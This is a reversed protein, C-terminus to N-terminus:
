ETMGAEAPIVSRLLTLLAAEDQWAVTVALAAVRDRWAPSLRARDKETTVLSAGKAVAEDALGRLDAESYAHHDPFGYRAVIRAGCVDLTAFFKAPRGIGAFAMVPKGAFDEGNVPTLAARLVQKHIRSSLGARDEGLLVVADARAIGQIAPERLPGAPMVRGNGLGYTGDIALLSLDKMLSPNQFGDDMVLCDAGADVAARAAAARDRGVWVPASRALMLPEDGVESARHRAPDVPVPGVAAGGYGRSLIAPRRGRAILLRALSEVVPTKGAGGVVLNGVCIVPVRARYPATLARRAAGLAAYAQAAPELLSTVLGHRSWFDPPSLTPM